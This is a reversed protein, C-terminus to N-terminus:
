AGDTNYSSKIVMWAYSKTKILISLVTITDSTCLEKNSFDKIILMSGM